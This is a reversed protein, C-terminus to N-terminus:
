YISRRILELIADCNYNQQLLASLILSFIIEVFAEATFSEHFAGSRVRKDNILVHYLRNQIHEWSQKMLRQGNSKEEGLFSMSHLTFFGPYTESGKEMRDFIWKVCDLFSDFTNECEPFHFIDHWVSEITAAVLDSKSGFYNYISGVAVGCASAVSRINIATWGQERILRRSVDLIAEKSTVVTNLAAGGRMRFM